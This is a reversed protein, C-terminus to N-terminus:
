RNRLIDILLCPCNRWRYLLLHRNALDLSPTTTYGANIYQYPSQSQCFTLERVLRKWRHLGFSLTKRTLADPVKLSYALCGHSRSWELHRPHISSPLSSIKLGHCLGSLCFGPLLLATDPCCAQSSTSGQINTTPAPLRYSVHV